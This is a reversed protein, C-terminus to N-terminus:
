KLKQYFRHNRDFLMVNLQFLTNDESIIIRLSNKTIKGNEERSETQLEYTGRKLSIPQRIDEPISLSEAVENNEINIIKINTEKLEEAIIRVSAEAATADSFIRPPLQNKRIIREDLYDRPISQFFYWRDLLYLKEDPFRKEAFKIWNKVYPDPIGAAYFQLTRSILNFSGVRDIAYNPADAPMNWPHDMTYEKYLWHGIDASAKVWALNGWVQALQYLMNGSYGGYNTDEVLPLNQTLPLSGNPKQLSLVAGTENMVIDMATQSRYFKSKPEWYLESFLSAVQLNQNPNIELPGMKGEDSIGYPFVIYGNNEGRQVQNVWLTAQNDVFNLVETLGTYKYAEFLGNNDRAFQDRYWWGTKQYDKSQLRNNKLYFKSYLTIIDKVMEKYDSDGSLHYLFALHKPLYGLYKTDGVLTWADKQVIDKKETENLIHWHNKLETLKPFLYDPNNPDLSDILQKYKMNLLIERNDLSQQISRPLLTYRGSNKISVSRQHLRKLKSFDNQATEINAQNLKGEIYNMLRYESVEYITREKAIKAARIYQENLKQRNSKGPTKGIMAETKILLGTFGDYLDNLKVLNGTLIVQNYQTTHKRLQEGQTLVSKPPSSALAPMTTLTGGATIASALIIKLMKM